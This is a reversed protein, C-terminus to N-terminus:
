NGGNTRSKVNQRRDNCAKLDQVEKQCAKWNRNSNVLCGQLLLYLSSCQQLQKVNEDDEDADDKHAPTTIPQPDM